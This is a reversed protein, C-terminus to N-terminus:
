RSSLKSLHDPTYYEGGNRGANGMKNLRSEYWYTMEHREETTQFRLEDVQELIDRLNYGSQIRNRIETFIVGIKVEISQPSGVEKFKKLYPFLKVNVFEILDDGVLANAVDYEGDQNHPMVWDNWRYGEAIIPSYPKGQLDCALKRSKELDDLYKLFLIWSTQEVYDLESTCRKDTRLCNDLNKVTQEFAM